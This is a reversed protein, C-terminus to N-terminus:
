GLVADRYKGLKDNPLIKLHHPNQPVSGSASCQVVNTVSGPMVPGQDCESDPAGDIRPENM